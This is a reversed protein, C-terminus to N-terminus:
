EPLLKRYWSGATYENPIEKQGTKLYLDLIYPKVLM